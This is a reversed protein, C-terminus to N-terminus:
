FRGGKTEAICYRILVVELLEFYEKRLLVCLEDEKKIRM